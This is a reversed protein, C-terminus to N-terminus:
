FRQNIIVSREIYRNQHDFIIEKKIMEITDLDLNQNELKKQRLYDGIVDIKRDQELNLEELNESELKNGLDKDIQNHDKPMESSNDVAQAM